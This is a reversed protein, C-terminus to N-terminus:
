GRGQKENANDESDRERVHHASNGQLHKAEQAARDTQEQRRKRPIERIALPQQQDEGPEHQEFKM